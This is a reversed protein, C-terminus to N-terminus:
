RLRNRKVAEGHLYGEAYAAAFDQTNDFAAGKKGDELGKSYAKAIENSWVM